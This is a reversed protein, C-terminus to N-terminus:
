CRAPPLGNGVPPPPDPRPRLVPERVPRAPLFRWWGSVQRWGAVRWRTVPRHGPEARELQQDVSGSAGSPAAAAPPEAQGDPAHQDGDILTNTDIAYATFREHALDNYFGEHKKWAIVALAASLANLDAVQINRGYLDDSDVAGFSIRSRAADRMAQPETSLTTRVLGALRGDVEYVGLGVDIFPIKRLELRDILARKAPGSDLALFVFSMDDLEAANPADLRYAHPIIGRRMPSYRAALYDVKMPRMRLDDITPAGPARFANHQLFVDGDFLHIEHVPTKAILDLLYSGTGGLGVIAMRPLALRDTIVHTGSRSSATDLYEFAAGRDDAPVPQYTCATVSPDIARAPAGLIALYSTVLEHYDRFGDTASPKSSLTYRAVLSETVQRPLQRDLVVKALPVGLRDCPCDGSFYAVHGSPPATADGSLTLACALTGHRVERRANVYPVHTVVLHGRAIAVEYGDDRLRRLDPSRDILRQSM